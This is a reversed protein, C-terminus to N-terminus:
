KVKFLKNVKSKYYFECLMKFLWQPKRYYFTDHIYKGNKITSHYGVFWEFLKRGVECKIKEILTLKYIECYVENGEYMADMDSIFYCLEDNYYCTGYMHIDWHNIIHRFKVEEYKQKCILKM